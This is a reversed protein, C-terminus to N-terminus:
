DQAVPPASATQLLPQIEQLPPAVEVAAAQSLVLLFLVDLAETIVKVPFEQVVQILIDMGLVGVAVAVMLHRQVQLRVLAEKFLLLQALYYPTVALSVMGEKVQPKIVVQVVQV